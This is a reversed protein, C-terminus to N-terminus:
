NVSLYGLPLLLIVAVPPSPTLRPELGDYGVRKELQFIAQTDYPNADHALQQGAVWYGIFDSTTPNNAQLSLGYAAAVVLFGTAVIAIAGAMRWPSPTRENRVPATPSKARQPEIRGGISTM